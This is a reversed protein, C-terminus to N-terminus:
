ITRLLGAPTATAIRAGEIAVAMGSQPKDAIGDVRQDPLIILPAGSDNQM